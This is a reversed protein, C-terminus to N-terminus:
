LVYRRNFLFFSFRFVFKIAAKRYKSLASHSQFICCIIPSNECFYLIDYLSGGICLKSIRISYRHIIQRLVVLLRHIELTSCRKFKSNERQNFYSPSIGNPENYVIQIIIQRCLHRETFVCVCADTSVM